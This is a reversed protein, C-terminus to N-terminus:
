AFIDGDYQQVKRRTAILAKIVAEGPTDAFQHQWSIRDFSTAAQWRGDQTPYLTFGVLGNKVAEDLVTEFDDM